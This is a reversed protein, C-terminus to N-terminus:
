RVIYYHSCTQCGGARGTQNQHQPCMGWAGQWILIERSVGKEDARWHSHMAPLTPLAWIRTCPSGQRIPGRHGETEGFSHRQGRARGGEGAAQPMLRGMVAGMDGPGQAGAETVAQDVAERIEEESLQQPLYEMIIELEASEKEVLDARGGEEFARM